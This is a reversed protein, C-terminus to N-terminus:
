PLTGEDSRERGIRILEKASRELWDKFDSEDM